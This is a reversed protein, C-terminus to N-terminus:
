NAYLRVGYKRLFDVFSQVKKHNQKAFHVRADRYDLVAVGAKLLSEIESSSKAQDLLILFDGSVPNEDDICIKMDDFVLSQGKIESVEGLKFEVDKAYASLVEIFRELENDGDFKLTTIPKAPSGAALTNPAINKNILSNAGIVANEGVVVNPLIFVRWPLWVNDEIRIPGFSIPGGKIYNPWSGHTFMLTHGGVGVNQGIYIGEGPEIWCLPFMSSHDGIEFHSAETFESNIVNLSSIQVYNFLKIVRTKIVVLPRIKTAEGIELDQSKILVFPGIKTRNGITVKQSLILTGFKLKTQRGISQGMLRRLPVHIFSPCCALFIYILTRM